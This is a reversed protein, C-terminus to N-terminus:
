KAFQTSITKWIDHQDILRFKFSTSSQFPKDPTLLPNSQPWNHNPSDPFKQTELCLADHQTYRANYKAHHVDLYNGTYLQIGPETTRIEMQIHTYPSYVSAAINDMSGVNNLAFCNDYGWFRSEISGPFFENSMKLGDIMQLGERLDFFTGEVSALEGTPIMTKDVPLYHDADIAVVHNLISILSNECGNLNFYSHNTLNIVTPADSEAAYDIRLENNNDLTYTVTARVTAPFGNDGDPSVLQLVLQSDNHSLVDFVAYQWGMPGGHLCNPGDNLPLSYSIESERAHVGAYWKLSFIGGAIRNAYRGVVAGFDSKNNEPFYDELKDFGMVIDHLRDDIGPVFLSVIRAGFNTITAKIGNNNYITFLGVEKNNYTTM